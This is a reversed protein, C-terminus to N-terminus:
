RAELAARHRAETGAPDALYDAYEQREAATPRGAPACIEACNCLLDRNAYHGNLHNIRRRQQYDAICDEDCYRSGNNEIGGRQVRHLWGGCEVCADPMIGAQGCLIITM